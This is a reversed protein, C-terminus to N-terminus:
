RKDKHGPNGARWPPMQPRNYKNYHDMFTPREIDVFKGVVIERDIDLTAERTDIDSRTV